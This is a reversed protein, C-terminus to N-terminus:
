DKSEQGSVKMIQGERKNSADEIRDEKISIQVTKMRLCGACTSKCYANSKM